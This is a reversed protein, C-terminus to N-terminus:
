APRTRDKQTRTKPVLEALPAFPGTAQTVERSRPRKRDVRRWAGPAGGEGSVRKYSLASLVGPLERLPRGILRALAADAPPAEQALADALREVIDFRVAVRGCARYGAAACEAWERRRDLL